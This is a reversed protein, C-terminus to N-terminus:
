GKEFLDAHRKGLMDAKWQPIKFEWGVARANIEEAKKKAAEGEGEASFSVWSAEGDKRLRFTVVPGGESELRLVSVKDGAPTAALRRVDELEISGVGQAFQDATVGQKLKMGEPVKALKFKQEKGDGKEIVLPAEGSHEITLKRIKAQDTEFATVTVWDKLEVGGKPDGMALWTQTEAPRRVYIGSRGPGFADWRSRGLVLDALPQGKADLIRVARSKADKQAPDELELLKWKDKLATRPEVLETRALALLLARVREPNAAYGDREAIKWTLGTRQLTLKRDGQRLEISAIREGQRELEPLLRTGEVRGSGWRYTTAYLAVAVILSLLTAAALTVFHQPKIM